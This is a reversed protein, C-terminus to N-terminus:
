PLCMCGTLLLEPISYERDGVPPCVPHAMTPFPPSVAAAQAQGCIFAAFVGEGGGIVVDKPLNGRDSIICYILLRGWSITIIYYVIGLFCCDTDSWGYGM